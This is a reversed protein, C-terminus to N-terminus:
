TFFKVGCSKGLKPIERTNKGIALAPPAPTRASPVPLPPLPPLSAPLSPPLPSLPPPFLPSPLQTLHPLSTPLSPPLPSQIGGTWGWAMGLNLLHCYLFVAFVFHLSRTHFSIVVKAKCDGCASSTIDMVDM